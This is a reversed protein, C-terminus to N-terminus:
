IFIVMERSIRRIDISNTVINSRININQHKAELCTTSYSLNWSAISGVGGENSPLTKVM